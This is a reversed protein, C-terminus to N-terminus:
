ASLVLTTNLALNYSPYRGGYIGTHTANLLELIAKLAREVMGVNISPPTKPHTLENRLKIALKFEGWYSTQKELPKTSFKAFLYEIRDELRFMKLENTLRYQGDILEIKRELLISQDLLTLDPRTHFDEAISSLHAELACFGVLLSAHLYAIQSESSANRAAELHAKAEDFLSRAFEDISATM